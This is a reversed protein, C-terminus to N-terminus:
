SLLHRAVGADTILINIWKGRLAAAIAEAKERGGGIGIVDPIRRLQASTITLGRDDLPSRVEIGNGDILTGCVDARVGAALAERRWADPFGNCLCSEAPTWSGIGVVLGAVLAVPYLVLCRRCIHMGGVVACRDYDSPWHHSLYMPTDALPVEAAGDDTLLDDSM